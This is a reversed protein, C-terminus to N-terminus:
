NPIMHSISAELLKVFQNAAMPRNFYYGQAEECGEATLFDMQERTEVGEAIVRKKLSNGMSIVASVIAADDRQSSIEHVFSQDVKLSDVPFQRLYSLSSYGTGFDDVTLQVGIAKLAKLMSVTSEAHKMLVSETLELELCRPDLKSENLAVRVSEVFDKSRFEVASINVAMPIQAFGADRWERAQRCAERLVWHGIPLILGTDEAIPIFQAPPIFGREPHKWRLLAEVGVIAGTGLNIKPQFNLSFENRQLAIRLGAEIFQRESARINMEKKFFQYNNRGNDKAHYMATDANKILTEADEGDDPYISVGISVPVIVDHPGIHYPLTLAALLKAAGIGASEAADLESLVVVFEDGGQRGVTDSERVCSELRTAVAQLLQDGIVHGLSDNIHKFRDLDMFLVAIRYDHRRAM